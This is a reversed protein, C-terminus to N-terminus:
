AVNFQASLSLAVWGVPPRKMASLIRTDSLSRTKEVCQPITEAITVAQSIEKRLTAEKRAECIEM